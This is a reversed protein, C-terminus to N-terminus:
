YKLSSCCVLADWDCLAKRGGRSLSMERGYMVCQICKTTLHITKQEAGFAKCLLLRSLILTAVTIFSPAEDCGLWGCM